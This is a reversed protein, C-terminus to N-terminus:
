LSVFIASISVLISMDSVHSLVLLTERDLIFVPHHVMHSHMMFIFLIWQECAHFHSGKM